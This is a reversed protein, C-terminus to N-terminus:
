MFILILFLLLVMFFFLEEDRRTGKNKSDLYAKSHLQMAYLHRDGVSEEM